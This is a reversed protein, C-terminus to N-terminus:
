PPQPIFDFGGVTPPVVGTVGRGSGPAEGDSWVGLPDLQTPMLWGIALVLVILGLQDPSWHTSAVMGAVLAVFTDFARPSVCGPGVACYRGSADPYGRSM